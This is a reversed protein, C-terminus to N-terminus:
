LYSFPSKIMNSSYIEFLTPYIFHSIQHLTMTKFYYDVNLCKTNSQKWFTLIYVLLFILALASTSLAGVLIILDDLNPIILALM